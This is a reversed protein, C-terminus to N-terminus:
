NSINRFKVHDYLKLDTLKLFRCGLKPFLATNYSDKEREKKVNRGKHIKKIEPAKLNREVVVLLIAKNSNFLYNM